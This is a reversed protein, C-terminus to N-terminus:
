NCTLATGSTVYRQRSDLHGWWIGGLLRSVNVWHQYLTPGADCVTSWCQILRPHIDRTQQSHDRCLETSFLAYGSSVVTSTWEVYVCRRTSKWQAECLAISGAMNLKNRTHFFHFSDPKIGSKHVYLNFQALLVEQAHHSSYSSM